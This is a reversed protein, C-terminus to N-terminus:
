ESNLFSNEKELVLHGYKSKYYNKRAKNYHKLFKDLLCHWTSNMLKYYNYANYSQCGRKFKAEESAFGYYIQKIKGTEIVSKILNYFFINFYTFTGSTFNNDFGLLKPYCIGNKVFSLLYGIIKNDIKALYTVTENPLNHYLDKIRNFQKDFSIEYGHRQMLEKVLAAVKDLSASMEQNHCCELSIGTKAFHKIEKNISYKRNSNFDSLYGDFSSWKVPMIFTPKGYSGLYKHEYLKKTLMTNTNHAWLFMVSRIRHSQAVQEAENLLHVVIDNHYVDTRDVLLDSEYGLPSVCVLAPFFIKNLIPHIRKNLKKFARVLVHARGFNAAQLLFDDSFIVDRPNHYVYTNPDRVIFAPLIGLLRKGAYATIYVPENSLEHEFTKFWGYNYFISSGKALCDWELQPINDLKHYIRTKIDVM